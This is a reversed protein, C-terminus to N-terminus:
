VNPPARVDEDKPKDFCTSAGTAQGMFVHDEEGLVGYDHEHCLSKSSFSGFDVMSMAVCMYSFGQIGEDCRFKGSGHGVESGCGMSEKQSAKSKLAIGGDSSCRWFLSSGGKSAM